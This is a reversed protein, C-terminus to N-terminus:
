INAIFNGSDPLRYKKNDYYAVPIVATKFRLEGSCKRSYM